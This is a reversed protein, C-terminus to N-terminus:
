RDTPLRAPPAHRAGPLLLPDSTALTHASLLGGLARITLEFTHVRQDIDFTLNAAAWEAASAFEAGAGMVQSGLARGQRSRGEWSTGAWRREAPEAPM